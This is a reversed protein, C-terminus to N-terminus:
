AFLLRRDLSTHTDPTHQTHQLEINAKYGPDALVNGNYRANM